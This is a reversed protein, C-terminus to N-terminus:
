FLTLLHTLIINGQSVDMFRAQGRAADAITTRRNGKIKAFATFPAKDNRLDFGVVFVLGIQGGAAKMRDGRSLVLGDFDGDCRFVAVRIDQGFRDTAVALCVALLM